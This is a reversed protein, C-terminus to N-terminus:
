VQAVNQHLMRVQEVGQRDWEESDYCLVIYCLV